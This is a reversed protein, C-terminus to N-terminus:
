LQVDVTVTFKFPLNDYTALFEPEGFKSKPNRKKLVHLTVPDDPVILPVITWSGDPNATVDVSPYNVAFMLPDDPDGPECDTGYRFKYKELEAATLGQDLLSARTVSSSMNSILAMWNNKSVPRILIVVQEGGTAARIAALLKGATTEPDVLDNGGSLDMNITRSSNEACADQCHQGLFAEVHEFKGKGDLEVEVKDEGGNRCDIYPGESDSSILMAEDTLTATGIWMSPGGGGGGKKSLSHSRDTNEAQESTVPTEKSCGSFLMLVCGGLIINKLLVKM